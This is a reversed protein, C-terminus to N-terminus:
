SKDPKGKLMPEQFLLVTRWDLAGRYSSNTGKPYAYKVENRIASKTGINNPNRRKVGVKMKDEQIKYIGM